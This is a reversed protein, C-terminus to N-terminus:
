LTRWWTAGFLMTLAATAAKGYGCQRARRWAMPIQAAHVVVSLFADIWFLAWLAPHGFGVVVGYLLYLWGVIPVLRPLLSPAPGLRAAAWGALEERGIKANHRIDVPFSPRFLFVEIRETQERWAALARLEREIRPWDEPRTGPRPEVCLAPQQRGPPGIGVLATRNVDPHANFIGECRVTHLTGFATRVRQSRRGAFWLRGSDDLHGLDGTRHWTRDGAVIKGDVNASAPAHYRPSVSPGAIVIEGVDGPKVLLEDSWQPVPRDTVQVIRVDIGDVPAGVCTGDGARTGESTDDLIEGSTISAIPLAETAGYTVYFGPVLPHVARVIDESVPAGGSVLARMTPLPRGLEGLRRLLAPSAFMATAGYQEVADAILAPDAQAIRTPDVDPLVATGGLMLDFIGFLPLTVVSVGDPGLGHAAAAQALMADLMGHTYEVAKAPGTSGTTFSIVLLDDPGAEAPPYVGADPVRGPRVVVSTRLGRFALRVAHALPIGVFAEAGATRYCHLMRRVGMGPDVVIPVAGIKFLGFLVSFLDPGPKLMLITKTGAGIGRRAFEAAHADSARDLEGYTMTGGPYALATKAPDYTGLVDAISPRAEAIPLRTGARRATM